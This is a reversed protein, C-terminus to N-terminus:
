STMVCCLLISCASGGYYELGVLRELTVVALYLLADSSTLRYVILDKAAVILILGSM